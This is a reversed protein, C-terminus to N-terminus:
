FAFLGIPLPVMLMKNFIIYVFLAAGVATAASVLIKSKLTLMMAFVICFATLLFGLFDSAYIYFFVGLVTVLINGVGRANFEPLRRVFPVGSRIGKPIQVAGAAMLLAGIVTPFLSPGPMGDGMAPYSWVHLIVGLGLLIVFVGIVADNFRM